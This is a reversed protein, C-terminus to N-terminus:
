NENKTGLELDSFKQSLKNFNDSVAKSFSVNKM